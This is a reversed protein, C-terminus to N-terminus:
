SITRAAHCRPMDLTFAPGKAMVGAVWIAMREIGSVPGLLDLNEHDVFVVAPAIAALKRVLQNFTGKV